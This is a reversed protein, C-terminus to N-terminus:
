AGPRALGVSDRLMVVHGAAQAGLWQGDQVQKQVHAEGPNEAEGVGPLVGVPSAAPAPSHPHPQHQGRGM